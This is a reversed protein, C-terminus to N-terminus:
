YASMGVHSGWRLFYSKACLLLATLAEKDITEALLQTTCSMWNSDLTCLGPVTATQGTTLCTNRELQSQKYLTCALLKINYLAAVPIFCHHYTCHHNSTKKQFVEWYLVLESYPVIGETCLHGKSLPEVTYPHCPYLRMHDAYLVSGFETLISQWPKLVLQLDSM